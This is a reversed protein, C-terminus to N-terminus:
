FSNKRLRKIENIESKYIKKKGNGLASEINKINAILKWLGDPGLSAAHDSGWMARDVTIHREIMCAGLTAAALSPALLTEHGSYGVPVNFMKMFNNIVRLNLDEKKAPYASTCHLIILNKNGIIKIAKKIQNLSSMGTSLIIPKKKNKVYRLLEINTLSASAVKYCPPKLKEMFDVSEIDWCSAFWIIKKKKCDDSIKKYEQYGFEVGKRYEGYTNGFPSERYKELEKKTYLHEITRKQFKVADSGAKKAIDILKKAIRINGNHNIGIESVFFCPYGPGIYRNAIKVPKIRM